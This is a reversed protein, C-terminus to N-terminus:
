EEKHVTPLEVQPIQPPTSATVEQAVTSPAPPSEGAEVGLADLLKSQQIKKGGLKM